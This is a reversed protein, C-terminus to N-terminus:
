DGTSIQAREQFQVLSRRRSRATSVDSKRQALLATAFQYTIEERHETNTRVWGEM